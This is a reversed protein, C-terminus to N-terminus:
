SLSWRCLRKAPAEYKRASRKLAASASNEVNAPARSKIMHRCWTPFYGNWVKRNMVIDDWEFMDAATAKVGVLSDFVGSLGLRALFYDARLIMCGIAAFGGVYVMVRNPMIFASVTFAGHVASVIKYYGLYM